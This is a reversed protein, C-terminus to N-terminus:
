EKWGVLDALSEDMLEQVCADARDAESALRCQRAAEQIFGSSRTDPVWIQV